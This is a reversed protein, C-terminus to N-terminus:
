FGCDPGEPRAAQRQVAGDMAHGMLAAANPPLTEHFVAGIFPRGSIAIRATARHRQDALKGDDGIYAVGQQDDKLPRHHDPGAHDRDPGVAQGDIQQGAEDDAGADLTQRHHHMFGAVIHQEAIAPGIIQDAVQEDGVRQREADVQIAHRMHHMVAMGVRRAVIVIPDLAFVRILMEGLIARAHHYQEQAAQEAEVIIADGARRPDPGREGIEVIRAAEAEIEPQSQADAIHDPRHDDIAENEPRGPAPLYQPQEQDGLKEPGINEVADPRHGFMIADGVGAFQVAGASDEGRQDVADQDPREIDAIMQFMMQEGGDGPVIQAAQMHMHHLVGGIGRVRM